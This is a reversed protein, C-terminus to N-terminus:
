KLGTGLVSKLKTAPKSQVFRGIEWVLGSPRKGAAPVIFPEPREERDDAAALPTTARRVCCRTCRM